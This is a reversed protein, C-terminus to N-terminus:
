GPPIPDIPADREELKKRVLSSSESMMEAVFAEEESMQKRILEQHDYYFALAAHVDALTITPYAAVIEAPSMGLQEYWTAIDQVRIRHGAIRPKGGCTGPTIAIHESIVSEM